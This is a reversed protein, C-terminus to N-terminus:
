IWTKQLLYYYKPALTVCSCHNRTFFGLKECEISLLIVPNPREKCKRATESTGNLEKTNMTNIKHWKLWTWPDGEITFEQLRQGVAVQSPNPRQPPSNQSRKAQQKLKYFVLIYLLFTQFTCFSYNKLLILLDTSRHMYTHTHTHRHELLKLGYWYYLQKEINWNKESGGTPLALNLTKKWIWKTWTIEEIFWYFWNTFWSNRTKYM